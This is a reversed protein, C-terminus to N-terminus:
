DALCGNKTYERLGSEGWTKTKREVCIDTVVGVKCVRRKLSQKRKLGLTLGKYEIGLFLFVSHVVM